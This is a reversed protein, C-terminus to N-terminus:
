NSNRTKMIEDMLSHETQICKLSKKKIIKFTYCSTACTKLIPVYALFNMKLIKKQIARDVVEYGNKKENYSFVVM